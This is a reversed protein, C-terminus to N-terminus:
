TESSGPTGHGNDPSFGFHSFAAELLMLSDPQLKPSDCLAKACGAMLRGGLSHGVLHIRIGPLKAHLARVAAAVGQAGVTGSRDKMVYWTTLNLFQGVGGAITGFVDGIGRTGSPRGSRQTEGATGFGVAQPDAAARRDQRADLTRAAVARPRRIRGAGECQGRADAAVEVAKELKAREAPSADQKSDELQVKADAMAEAPNQLGRTGGARRRVDGSVAEVALLVGGVVFRREAVASFEPRSLHARFTTLFNTYLSTADTDDNRFGHAIFIADTAPASNARAILADFEQRSELKGENTM